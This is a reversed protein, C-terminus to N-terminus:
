PTNRNRPAISGLFFTVRITSAKAAEPVFRGSTRTAAKAPLIVAVDLGEAIFAELIPMEVTLADPRFPANLPEGIHREGRQHRQNAACPSNKKGDM